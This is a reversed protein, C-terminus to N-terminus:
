HVTSLRTLKLRERRESVNHQECEYKMDHKHGPSRPRTLAKVSSRGVPPPPAPAVISLPPTYLTKRKRGTSCFGSNIIIIIHTTFIATLGLLVHLRLRALLLQEQQRRHTNKLEAQLVIVDTYRCRGAMDRCLSQFSESVIVRFVM